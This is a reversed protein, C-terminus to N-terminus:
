LVGDPIQMVSSCPIKSYVVRGIASYVPISTIFQNSRMERNNDGLTMLGPQNLQMVLENCPGVLHPSRPRNPLLSPLFRENQGVRHADGSQISARLLDGKGILSM